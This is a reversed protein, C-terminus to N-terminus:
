EKEFYYMCFLRKSDQWHKRLVLGAKACLESFEGVSYKYSSETHITEGEKFQFIARDVKVQQPVLSKLHMEIRGKENNYIAEHRFSHLDFSAGIERNIRKLLNMNFAATVGEKDDYARQLTIRDKKLDVGILYGGGSNLMRGTQKLFTIAEDPNLNGITSGPFFIVKKGNRSEADLPLDLEETFDACVPIVKLEPFEHFLEETMRLLIEKSIEIPVYGVPTELERLISRVKEGSGSGPEIVLARPGILDAMEHAYTELIEKESRTPYYEPLHCIREFIESGKKDYLFKPPIMKQHKSLGVMVEELLHSTNPEYDYFEVAENVMM